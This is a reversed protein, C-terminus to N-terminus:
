RNIPLFIQFTSGKGIKSQVEVRGGHAEAVAKVIALGLGSGKIDATSPSRYYKDFIKKREEPYIGPGTDEVSIVLSEDGGSAPEVRVSVTGGKRTYNVANQVLNNVARQLYIKDVAILPLGEKIDEKFSIGKDAAMAAYNQSLEKVLKGIDEFEENLAINGGELRSITLIKDVIESLNGCSRKIGEAMGLTESDLQSGKDTLILDIYGRIVTLPTKIDHTVMAYFDARQRELNKRESIDQFATVAGVIEGKNIIASSVYSVPFRSGDKRTFYMDEVRCAKGSGLPENILCRTDLILKENDDRCKVAKCLNTGILEAEKYGLLREAEPNMFTLMGNLDQVMVGEGLASTIDRLKKEDELRQMALNLSVRQENAEEKRHGAIFFAVSLTCIALTTIISVLRYAGRRVFWERADMVMEIRAVASGNEDRINMWSKISYGDVDRYPGYVSPKDAENSYVNRSLADNYSEGPVQYGSSGYAGSGALYITSDGAARVLSVKRCYPLGKHISVLQGTIEKHNETVMDKASGTLLAAQAPQIVSAVLQTWEQLEEDEEKIAMNGVQETVVWGLAVIFVLTLFPRPSLRSVPEGSGAAPKKHKARYFGMVSAAVWFAMLGRLLQVPFGLTATFTDYNIISAPIFPLKPVVIGTAVGYVGMGVAAQILWKSVPQERIKWFKTALAASSVVGGVLGLSYRATANFSPVGSPIGTMAFAILPLYIWRGPGRGFINKTGARGFEILFLFSGAMVVARVVSFLFSDGLSLALMDLWENAGHFLGFLGLLNWPLLNRESKDLLFCIEAMALFSLGYFFYVYDLQLKLFDAM